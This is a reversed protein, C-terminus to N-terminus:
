KRGRRRVAWAAAGITLGLLSWGAPEPVNQTATPPAAAPPVPVAGPPLPWPGPAAIPGSPRAALAPFAPQPPIFSGPYGVRAVPGEQAAPFIRSVNGCKDPVMIWYGDFYYVAAPEGPHTAPLEARSAHCVTRVSKGYRDATYTTSFIPSYAGGFGEIRDNHITVTGDHMGAAIRGVVARAVRRPVLQAILAEETDYRWRSDKAAGPALWPNQGFQRIKCGMRQPLMVPTLQDPTAEEANVVFPPADSPQGYTNGATVADRADPGWHYAGLGFCLGLLAFVTCKEWTRYPSLHNM